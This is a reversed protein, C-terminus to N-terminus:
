PCYIYYYASGRALASERCHGEHKIIVACVRKEKKNTRYRERTEEQTSGGEGGVWVGEETVGVGM